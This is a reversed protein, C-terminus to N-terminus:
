DVQTVEKKFILSQYVIDTGKKIFTGEDSITMGLKEMVKISAINEKAVTATFEYIGKSYGFEILANAMESAYGKGWYSMHVCYGLGWETSKSEPGLSCTSIFDHSDKLYAVFSYDSWTEVDSLLDYLVEPTEYYPDHLYKGMEKDGWITWIHFADDQQVTKLLLRQTVIPETYM